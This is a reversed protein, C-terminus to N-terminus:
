ERLVSELLAKYVGQHESIAPRLFPQPNHGHTKSGEKNPAPFEDRNHSADPNACGLEVWSAYDVNTGIIALYKKEDVEHTISNRLRGTDVPCKKVAYGEATLAIEELAKLVKGNCKDLVVDIHSEIEMGM